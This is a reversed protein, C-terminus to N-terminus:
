ATRTTTVPMDLGNASIKILLLLKGSLKVWLPLVRLRGRMSSSLLVFDAVLSVALINNEARRLICYM